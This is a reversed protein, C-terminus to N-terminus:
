MKDLLPAEKHIKDLLPTAKDLLVQPDEEIGLEKVVDTWGELPRKGTAVQAYRLM